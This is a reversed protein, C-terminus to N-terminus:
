SRLAMETNEPRAVVPGNVWDVRFGWLLVSMDPKEQQSGPQKAESLLRRVHFGLEAFQVRLPAPEM